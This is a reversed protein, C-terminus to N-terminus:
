ADDPEFDSGPAERQWYQGAASELLKKVAERLSEPAVVEVDPGYKLIDMLLERDDSYPIRLEFRGDDMWRGQQQPHWTEEAVWRARQVTFVLVATARPTGAFIGYSSALERNLTSEAITKAPKTLPDVARICEVAFIRLGKKEHCWADLYWNDRYHALRQPSIERSSTADRDRAYYDIRLRQRQLVAGAITQFHHPNKRRAAMSLLRIRQLAEGAGLHQGSLLSDIRSQLPRLHDDLLGPELNALLHKLTVLALLEDATFWLGPMLHRGDATDYRYGGRDPDHVLPAGLKDRLDAILRALTSRAFGHEGILVARSIGTRRGDLLRHLRYIEDLKSM